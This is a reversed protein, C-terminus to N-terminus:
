KYQWTSCFSATFVCFLLLFCCFLEVDVTTDIIITMITNSVGVGVGVRLLHRLPGPSVLDEHIIMNNNEHKTNDSFRSSRNVILTMGRDSADISAAEVGSDDCIETGDDDDDDKDSDDNDKDDDVGAVVVVFVVLLLLLLVEDKSSGKSISRPPSVASVRSIAM